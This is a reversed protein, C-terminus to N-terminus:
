GWVEGSATVVYSTKTTATVAVSGDAAASVSFGVFGLTGLGDVGRPLAADTWVIEV